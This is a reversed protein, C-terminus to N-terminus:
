MGTIAYVLEDNREEIIEVQGWRIMAIMNWLIANKPIELKISLESITASNLSLINLIERRQNRVEATKQKFLAVFHGSM